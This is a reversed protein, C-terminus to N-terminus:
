FIISFFLFVACSSSLSGQLQFKSITRSLSVALQGLSPVDLVPFAVQFNRVWRTNDKRDGTQCYAKHKALETDNNCCRVNMKYPCSPKPEILGIVRKEGTCNGGSWVGESECLLHFWKKRSEKTGEEISM